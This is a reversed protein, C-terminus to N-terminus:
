YTILFQCCVRLNSYYLQNVNLSLALAEASAADCRSAVKGKQELARRSIPPNSHSIILDLYHKELYHKQLYQSTDHGTV